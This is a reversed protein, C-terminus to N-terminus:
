EAGGVEGQLRGTEAFRAYAEVVLEAQPKTLAGCKARLREIASGAPGDVIFAELDGVTHLRAEFMPEVVARPVGELRAPSQARPDFLPTGEDGVIVGELADRAEDLAKKAEAAAEKRAELTRRRADVLVLASRIDALKQVVDATEAAPAPAKSGRPM